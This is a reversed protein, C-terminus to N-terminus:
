ISGDFLNSKTLSNKCFLYAYVLAFTTIIANILLLYYEEDSLNPLCSRCPQLVFDLLYLINEGIISIWQILDPFYQELLIFLVYTLLNLFIM